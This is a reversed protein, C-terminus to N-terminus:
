EGVHSLCAGLVDEDLLVNAIHGRKLGDFGAKIVQLVQSQASATSSRFAARETSKADGM